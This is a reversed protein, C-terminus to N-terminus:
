ILDFWISSKVPQWVAVSFYTFVTCICYLLVTLAYQTPRYLLSLLPPENTSSISIELCWELLLIANLLQFTKLICLILNHRRPKLHCPIETTGPLLTHLVHEKNINRNGCTKVLNEGTFTFSYVVEVLLSSCTWVRPSLTFHLAKTGCAWVFM